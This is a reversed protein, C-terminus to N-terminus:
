DHFLVPGDEEDKQVKQSPKSPKEKEQRVKYAREMEAILQDLNLCLSAKNKSVLEKQYWSFIAMLVNEAVPSSCPFTYPNDDGAVYILIGLGVHHVMKSVQPMALYITDECGELLGSKAFRLFCMM